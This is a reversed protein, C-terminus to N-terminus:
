HITHSKFGLNSTTGCHSEDEGNMCHGIGDCLYALPMCTGTSTCQFESSRCFSGPLPNAICISFLFIMDNLQNIHFISVRLFLTERNASVSVDRVFNIRM